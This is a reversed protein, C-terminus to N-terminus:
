MDHMDDGITKAAHDIHLSDGISPSMNPAKGVVDIRKVMSQNSIHQVDSRWLVAVMVCRAPWSWHRADHGIQERM